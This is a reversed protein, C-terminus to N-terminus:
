VNQAVTQSVLLLNLAHLTNESLEPKNGGINFIVLSSVSIYNFTVSLVWTCTYTHNRADIKDREVIQGNYKSVTGSTHYKKLKFLITNM